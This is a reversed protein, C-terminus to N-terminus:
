VHIHTYTCVCVCVCVNERERERERECVCVCVICIYVHEREVVKIPADKSAAQSLEHSAAQSLEHRFDMPPSGKQGVFEQGQGLCDSAQGGKPWIQDGKGEFGGRGRKVDVMMPETAKDKADFNAEEKVGVQLM